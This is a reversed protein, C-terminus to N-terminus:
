GLDRSYNVVSRRYRPLHPALARLLLAVAERERGLDTLALALFADVADGLGHEPGDEPGDGAGSGREASLLAVSEGPDGLNRVTSALQIVAQRRLDGPLGGALARRYLAAAVAESGTSDHASAREFLGVPDEAPLEGALAEMEERFRAAGAEGEAGYSDFAAWLGDVRRRWGPDEARTM